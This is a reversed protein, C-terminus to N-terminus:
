KRKVIEVVGYVGAGLGAGLGPGVWYVWDYGQFGTVVSPGFSRAPNLSGGTYYVGCMEAVFLTLGVMAPKTPSPPMMLIALVLHATLFAELFLGRVVSISADLKTSSPLTGPLMAEVVFAACIGAVVQAVMAHVARICSMSRTLCLALSVAPNFMGGSVDGWMGACVALSAGFALSVYILKSVEQSPNEAPAVAPNSTASTIAIQTGALALFLFMFTGFFEGVFVVPETRLLSPRSTLHLNPAPTLPTPSTTSPSSPTSIPLISETSKPM